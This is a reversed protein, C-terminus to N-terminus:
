EALFVQLSKIDVKKQQLGYSVYSCYILDNITKYIKINTRVFYKFLIVQSSLDERSM